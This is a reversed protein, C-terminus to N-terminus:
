SGYWSVTHHIVSFLPSLSLSLSLSLSVFDAFCREYKLSCGWFRVFTKLMMCMKNESEVDIVRLYLVDKVRCGWVHWSIICLEFMRHTLADGDTEVDKMSEFDCHLQLRTVNKRELSSAYSLSVSLSFLLSLSLSLSLSLTGYTVWHMTSQFTNPSTPSYFDSRM